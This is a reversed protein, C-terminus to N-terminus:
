AMEEGLPHPNPVIRRIRHGGPARLFTALAAALLGACGMLVGLHGEAGAVTGPACVALGPLLGATRVVGHVSALANEGFCDATMAALLPGVAGGALGSLAACCLFLATGGGRPLAAPAFGAAAPLLCAAVLATRRGLGDSLRGFLAGGLGAALVAGCVAAAVTRGGFEGGAGSVVRVAAGLVGAGATGLVCWMLWLAPTRIAERPGFQRVAPPNKARARRERPDRPVRRPDAHAPWWNPPPDRLERGAAAVLLCLAAGAAVWATRHGGPDPGAVALLVLPAAGCTLGGAVLGTRAGRREPHWKAATSVCTAQVLGAALGGGVAFLARAAPAHPAFAVAPCCLLAVLAGVPVAARAPLRGRERLRGAPLAVAARCVLWVGAPWWLRGDGWWGTGHPPAAAAAFAAEAAGIGATGTWPLAAMWGRARGLLDDDTEGIRYVRGHRDTVERAAVPGPCETMTM